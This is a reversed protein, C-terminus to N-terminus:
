WSRSATACGPIRPSRAATSAEDGPHPRGPQDVMLRMHGYPIGSTRDLDLAERVYDWGRNEIGLLHDAPVRVDDYFTAGIEGGDLTPMSAVTFGERGHEVFLLSIGDRLPADPDTRVALYMIEGPAPHGYMKSGNIVYEDGDRCPAADSLNALDSGTEPETFGLTFDIEGDRIKPLLESKMWDSGYKIILPGMINVNYLSLPAGIARLRTRSSSASSLPSTARAATNRPGASRTGAARPSWRRSASSRRGGVGPRPPQMRGVSRVEAPWADDLFERVQARFQDQEESWTFDM